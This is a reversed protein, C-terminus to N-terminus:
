KGIKKGLVKIEQSFGAFDFTTLWKDSEALDKSEILQTTNKKIVNDGIASVDKTTGPRCM